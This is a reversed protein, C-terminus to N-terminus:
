TGSKRLCDNAVTRKESRACKDLTSNEERDYTRLPGDRHSDRKEVCDARDQDSAARMPRVSRPAVSISASSACCDDEAEGPGDNV